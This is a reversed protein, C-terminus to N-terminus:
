QNDRKVAEIIIKSGRVIEQVSKINWYESNWLIRNAQTIGSYYHCTFSAQQKGVFESSEASENGAKPQYNAWLTTLTAWTPIVEGNTGRSTSSIHEITILRDMKGINM